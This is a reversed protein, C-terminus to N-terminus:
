TIGVRQWRAAKKGVQLGHLQVTQADMHLIEEACVFGHVEAAWCERVERVKEEQILDTM